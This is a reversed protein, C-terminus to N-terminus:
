ISQIKIGIRTKDGGREIAKKWAAEAAAKDGNKIYLDGLLEMLVGSRNADPIANVLELAEKNSGQADLIMVKLILSQEGVYNDYGGAIFGAEENMEKADDFEGLSYLSLANYYYPGAQNPYYDLAELSLEYLRDFDKDVALAMMLQDWVQYVSKNRALSEEYKPIAGSVDDSLWLVDGFLAYVKANEPYQRVMSACLLKLEDLREARELIPLLVKIKNDIGIRPDNIVTSLDTNNKTRNEINTTKFLAEEHEPDLKLIEKYTNAADKSKGLYEYFQALKVHASIDQPDRDVWKKVEEIAKKENGLALYIDVVSDSRFADWGYNTDAVKYVELAENKKNALELNQAQRHFLMESPALDIVKALTSAALDYEHTDEYIDTLTLLFWKNGPEYRVAKRASSVAKEHDEQLRYIKAMEYHIVANVENKELLRKFLDIAEDYAGLIKKQQASLFISEDSINEESLRGTNITIPNQSVGHIATILICWIIRVIQKM